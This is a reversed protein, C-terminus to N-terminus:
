MIFKLAVKHDSSRIPIAEVWWSVYDVGMLIYEYGKSIPFPGMFDLGGMFWTSWGWNNAVLAHSRVQALESCSPM